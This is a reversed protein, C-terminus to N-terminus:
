KKSEWCSDNTENAKKENPIFHSPKSKKQLKSILVLVNTVVFIQHTSLSTRLSQPISRLNILTHFELLTWAMSDHIWTRYPFTHTIKINNSEFIQHTSLFTRLSQPISRLNILTHFELLTWATNNHTWTRYPFTFSKENYYTLKTMWLLRNDNLTMRHKILVKLRIKRKMLFDRILSQVALGKYSVEWINKLHEWNYLLVNSLDHIFNELLGQLSFFFWAKSNINFIKYLNYLLKADDLTIKSDDFSTWLWKFNTLM